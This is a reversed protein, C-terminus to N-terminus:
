PLLGLLGAGVGDRNGLFIDVALVLNEGAQALVGVVQHVLPLLAGALQGIGVEQRGQENEIDGVFIALFVTGQGAGVDLVDPRGEVGSAHHLVVVVVGFPLCQSV